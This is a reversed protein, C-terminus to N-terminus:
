RIRIDDIRLTGTWPDPFNVYLELHDTASLAGQFDGEVYLWTKGTSVDIGGFVLNSSFNVNWQVNANQPNPGDFYVRASVHKGSLDVTGCLTRFFQVNHSPITADVQVAASKTGAYAVTGDVTPTGVVAQSHFDNVATWGELSGSEFSWVSVFCSGDSCIPAYGTACTGNCKSTLAICNNNCNQKDAPCSTM